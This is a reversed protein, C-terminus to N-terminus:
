KSFFKNQIIPLILIIFFINMSYKILQTPESIINTPIIDTNRIWLTTGDSKDPDGLYSEFAIYSENDSIYGSPAGDYGSYSTLRIPDGGTIPIKFINALEYGYAESSFVVWNGDSSFSADTKDGEGSTLQKNDTGDSNMIWIDWQNNKLKQYVILNSMPSWNPQRSDDSSDTLELYNSSGDVRYKTIIGNDEVDLIHTEFVIWESDHSWSPEYAVLNNRQTIKIENGKANAQIIYIEDHPERSSSFVITSNINWSNGPLNVNDSGDAVLETLLLSDLNYIFLDSPGQNYGSRFRTFLLSKGDFSIAPNQLSGELDIDLQFALDERSPEANVIPIHAYFYLNSFVLFLIIMEISNIGFKYNM